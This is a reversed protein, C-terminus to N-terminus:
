LEGIIFTVETVSVTVIPDPILKISKISKSVDSIENVYYPTIPM